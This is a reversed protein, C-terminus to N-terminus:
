LYGLEKLDRIISLCSEAANSSPLIAANKLNEFLRYYQIELPRSLKVNAIRYPTHYKKEIQKSRDFRTFYIRSIREEFVMLKSIIEEQVEKIVRNYWLNLIAYIALDVWCCDLIVLKDTDEYADLLNNYYEILRMLYVCLYSSDTNIESYDEFHGQEVLQSWVATYIDPCFVTDSFESYTSLTDILSTKGTSSPGSIAIFTAM